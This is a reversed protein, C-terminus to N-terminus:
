FEPKTATPIPEVDYHFYNFNGEACFSERISGQEARNYRQVANWPTTFAGPDEVHLNVELVKGGEILHFREVVHLKDTHP